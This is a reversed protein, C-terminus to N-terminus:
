KITIHILSRVDYGSLWLLEERNSTKLHLKLAGKYHILVYILFYANLEFSVKFDAKPLDLNIQQDVPRVLGIKLLFLFIIDCFKPWSANGKISQKRSRYKSHM